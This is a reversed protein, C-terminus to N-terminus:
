PNVKKVFQYDGNTVKLVVAAKVADRNKDFTIHGSVVTGDYAKLANKISESDTKGAKQISQILVKGADYNLAAMSDPVENNYKKKFSDIFTKVEDSTDSSSYHDSIYSGEVYEKGIKFLDASDWGDGGLFTSKIGLQRAQKAIMGVTGYYDPLLIVDPNTGKIETLQASFDTDNTNYTKTSVITGGNAKFSEVFTDALGKSYADGNNYLVAATKAKLDTGTAFNALVKGQFPDIFCTRFIYDGAQTVKANTATGTVMPIKNQQAIPALANASTSTLPGVIAVVKEDNILKNGANVASQAKAEDDEYVFQVKKGNIGGGNNVEDQLLNLGKQASKGYAAVSGTLPTVVGIKIVDSSSGKAKCGTAVATVMLALTMVVAIKKKVM